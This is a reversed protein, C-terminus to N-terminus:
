RQMSLAWIDGMTDTENQGGFLYLTSPSADSSAAAVVCMDRRENPIDSDYVNYDGCSLNSYALMDIHAPDNMQLDQHRLLPCKNLQGAVKYDAFPSQFHKPGNISLHPQGM